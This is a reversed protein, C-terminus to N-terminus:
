SSLPGRLAATATAARATLSGASRLVPDIGGNQRWLGPPAGFARKFARNFAAESEYGVDRAVQGLSGRQDRLMRAALVMRWHTLYQMPPMGVMDTFREALVSRSTHAEQALAEVTWPRAPDEHMLALCRGVQPDRLGSLWGPDTQPMSELYGRLAETFLVEAVKSAVLESGPNRGAEELVFKVSQEIWGGAPRTRLATSFMRPLHSTLPAAFDGEYAFWGCVVVTREGDGGYRVRALEPIRPSVVHALDVAAHHLGSGILHADGHPLTVMEGAALAVPAQGEMRIWCGGELVLHCIALRPAGPKLVRAIDAGEPVNVCWPARFEGNLFLAGELRVARLADSLVDM